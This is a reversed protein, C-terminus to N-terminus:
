LHILDTSHIYVCNVWVGKCFWHKSMIGARVSHFTCPWTYLTNDWSSNGRRSQGLQTPKNYYSRLPQHKTRGTLSQGGGGVVLM